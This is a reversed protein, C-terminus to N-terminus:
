CYVYLTIYIYIYIYWHHHNSLFDHQDPPGPEYFERSSAAKLASLWDEMERRSEACLVLSRTPTIVKLLFLLFYGNSIINIM